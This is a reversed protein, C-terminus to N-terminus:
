HLQPKNARSSVLRGPLLADHKSLPVPLRGVFPMLGIILYNNLRSAIIHSEFPYSRLASGYLIRRFVPSHVPQDPQM